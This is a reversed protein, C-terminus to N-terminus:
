PSAAPAPAPPPRTRTAQLAFVLIALMEAGNLLIILPVTQSYTAYVVLNVTLLLLAGGLGFDATTDSLCAILIGGLALMVATRLLWPSQMALPLFDAFEDVPLWRSALVVAAAGPLRVLIAPRERFPGAAPGRLSALTMVATATLPALGIGVVVEVPNGADRFLMRAVQLVAVALLPGTTRPDWSVFLLALLGALLTWDFQSM